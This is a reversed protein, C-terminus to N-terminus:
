SFIRQENFPKYEKGSWEQGLHGSFELMNLRVGHVMVAMVGLIINLGHGILLVVPAMIGGAMDNFSAAVTVTAVGVAFLRIYSVVDSFCSIVDLMSILVTGFFTGIMKLPNKQFNAFIGVVIIGATMLPLVFQPLPYSLVLLNAMFFIGIVIMIWGLEAVAQISPLKKFFSMIRGIILHITGLIFTFRMMFRTAEASENFSFMPEIIFKKLPEWQAIAKSGFWTGTLAGWIITMISLVFFLAFPEIPANRMKIRALLTGGLFLLGYGADGIIMAYFVSFFVLFVFSVDMEHYGPLTGMFKFLPEIIRLPKRNRLLTPVETPDDPEEFIYGWGNQDAATKVSEAVDEPCFGQLYVFDRADGVGAIVQSFELDKKMSQLHAEIAEKKKGLAHFNKDIAQLRKIIRSIESDLEKIEIRPMVDEPVNLKDDPNRSLLVAYVVGKEERLIVVNLDNSGDKLTRQDTRYCRVTIGANQLAEISTLSVKGWRDFWSRVELKEELQADLHDKESILELIEHVAKEGGKPSTKASPDIYELLILAREAHSVKASLSEVDDSQPPNVHQVHLVGLQRIGKMAQNKSKESILLTLKYMPVIM